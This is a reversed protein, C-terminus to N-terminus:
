ITKLLLRSLPDYFNRRKQMKKVSETQKEFPVYGMTADTSNKTRSKEGLKDVDRIGRLLRAYMTSINIDFRKACSRADLESGDSLKFKKCRYTRTPASRECTRM